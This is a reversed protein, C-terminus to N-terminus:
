CPPTCRTRRLQSGTAAGRHDQPGANRIPTLAPQSKTAPAVLLARALWPPLWWNWRGFLSMLAPVLLARVVTADILIGAGLATAFVKIDTQPGAALAAFALFLILAASTILRGTWGLGEVIAENTNGTRDYGERIRSLLFVEYDMSLGFLFAFTMLPVFDTIAATAPIGWIARSGYGDQWVLVLIGYSAGVSLLNLLIAKLPLLVSRFARALLVWTTLAIAALMLPFSNYVARVFDLTEAGPGGSRSRPSVGALAGRLRDIVQQGAPTSTEPAPLVVTLARGPRQWAPVTVDYVGPVGHIRQLSAPPLQGGPTLVEIPTLVGSPIGARDLTVLGQHAPGSSALSAADPDGVHIGTAAVGLGGLIALAALAAPVPHRIVIDAWAAWPRSIRGSRRIRPRDVQPGIAALGAPLLTLSVLVSVLPILIGGYGLSRLFPVPLVILAVLGVAVTIGSFAIARGATSMATIVASDNGAGRAREERWRTVILLSYDVAVGLGILAILYQALFSVTAVETMGLVLLFTTLISVGACLLPVLALMSGFVVALVVLAGLGGLLTEAFVGPGKGGGGASLAPLGTVSVTAEPMAHRLTATILGATQSQDDRPGPPPPTFILGFTTRGDASVFRRDGTSAISVIRLRPDRRAVAAFARALERRTAPTDATKGAPFTVVPVLPADPGGSGYARLIQKNAEYGPQGPLAFQQSLRGGVHGLGALAAIVVALWALMVLWRRRVIFTALTKM